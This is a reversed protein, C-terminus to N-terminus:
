ENDLVENVDKILVNIVPADMLSGIANGAALVNAAPATESVQNFTRSKTIMEGDVDLGASYVITMKRTIDVFNAAM